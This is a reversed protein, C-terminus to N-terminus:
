LAPLAPELRQVQGRVPHHAYLRVLVDAHLHRLFQVPHRRLGTELVTQRGFHHRHPHRLILSILLASGMLILTFPLRREILENVPRGPSITTSRGLDGTLLGGGKVEIPGLKLDIGTRKTSFLWNFYRTYWQYPNGREDTIGLAKGIRIIDTKSITKNGQQRLAEMPGGPILTLLFYILATALALTIFGLFFRRILFATM